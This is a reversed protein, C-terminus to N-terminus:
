GRRRRRRRAGRRLAGRDLRGGPLGGARRRPRRDGRADRAPRLRLARRELRAGRERVAAGGPLLRGDALPRDRRRARARRVGVLGPEVDLTIWGALRAVALGGVSSRSSCSSAPRRSRRSTSRRATATSTGADAPKTAVGVAFFTLLAAVLDTGSHAADAVLGLSGAALGTVLKIAILVAGRRGVRARHPAAAVRPPLSNAPHPRRGGVRPSSGRAILVGGALEVPRADGLAARGRDGGRPVAAPQRRADGAGARDPRAVPVLAREHRRAAGLTAFLLLGLGGLRPGLGADSSRTRRYRSRSRPSGSSSPASGRRRTRRMLPERADLVGGLHGGHAGSCCAASTARPERGLGGRRARRGRVLAAGRGLLPSPLREDRPRARCRPSSRRRASSSGSCRPPRDELAYVFGIQNVYVCPRRSSSRAPPRPARAAAVARRRADARRLRAGRARLARELVRAARLRPCIYRSVTLNLSWLVITTWLM